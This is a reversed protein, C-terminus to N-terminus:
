IFSLSTVTCTVVVNFNFTVQAVSAAYNASNVTLTFTHSGVDTPAVLNVADLSITTFDASLIIYFASPTLTATIPCLITPHTSTVNNKIGM